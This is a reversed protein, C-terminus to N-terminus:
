GRRYSRIRRAEDVKRQVIAVIDKGWVEELSKGEILCEKEHKEADAQGLIVVNDDELSRERDWRVAFPKPLILQEPFTSRGYNLDEFIYGVDETTIPIKPMLELKQFRQESASLTREISTYLKRRGKIEM